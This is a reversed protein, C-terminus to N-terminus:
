EDAGKPSAAPIALRRDLNFREPRQLPLSPKAGPLPMGQQPMNIPMPTAKTVYDPPPANNRQVAKIIMDAVGMTNRKALSVSLERDYMQTFQDEVDSGMLDNKEVTARMSKLMEQIFMAEFQTATEQLAKDSHQQAKSRLAGLGAFDLSSQPSAMGLNDLADAM